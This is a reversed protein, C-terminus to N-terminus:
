RRCKPTSAAAATTKIRGRQPKKLSANSGVNAMLPASCANATTTANRAGEVNNRLHEKTARAATRLTKVKYTPIKLKANNAMRAAFARSYMASPIHEAAPAM